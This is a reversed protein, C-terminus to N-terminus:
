GVRDAAIAYFAGAVKRRLGRGTELGIFRYIAGSVKGTGTSQIKIGCKELKRNLRSIIVYVQTACHDPSEGDPWLALVLGDVTRPCRRLADFVVREQGLLYVDPVIVQGCCRCRPATM